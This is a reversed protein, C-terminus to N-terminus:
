CKAANRRVRGAFPLTLNMRFTTGHGVKSAVQITGGMADVLKQTISLGLGAGGYKRTVTGDIQYFRNFIQDLQDDAIGVGTDMIDFVLTLGDPEPETTLRLCVYGVDTFKVANTLLNLLIQKIRVMDGKLVPITDEPLELRVELGKENAGPEILEVSERVVHAIDFQDEVVEFTEADIRSLDLIDDILRLLVKGSTTIVNVLEAQRKDMETKKMLAAIGLIGNLPTRMEHSMRAVFESKHRSSEEAAHRAEVLAEERALQPTMDRYTMVCGGTPLNRKAVNITRGDNLRRNVSVISPDFAFNYRRDIELEREHETLDKLDGFQRAFDRYPMGWFVSSKDIDYLELVRDNFIVFRGDNDLLTFGDNTNDLLVEMYHRHREVEEANRVSETVDVHISILTDDVTPTRYIDLIRGNILVRREMRSAESGWDALRDAVVAEPDQDPAAGLMGREALLRMADNLDDGVMIDDTTLEFLHLYAENFFIIRRDADVVSVGDRLTQLFGILGADVSSLDGFQRLNLAPKTM